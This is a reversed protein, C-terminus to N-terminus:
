CMITSYIGLCAFITSYLNLDNPFSTLIEYAVEVESLADEMDSASNHNGDLDLILVPIQGIVVQFSGTGTIGLDATMDFDLNVLHGAPTTIDATANFTGQATAGSVLNGFSAEFANLTLYPDIM